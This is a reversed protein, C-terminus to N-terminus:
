KGDLKLEGSFTSGRSGMIRSLTTRISGIFDHDKLNNSDKSDRDYVDFRLEQVQEFRYDLLIQDPFEPNLNDWITDTRKVERWTTNSPDVLSNTSEKLYLVVFPDSKSLLDLNKLGFCSLSLEVKATFKTNQDIGNVFEVNM